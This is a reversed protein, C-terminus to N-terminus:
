GENVPSHSIKEERNQCYPSSTTKTIPAKVGITEEKCAFILNLEPTEEEPM